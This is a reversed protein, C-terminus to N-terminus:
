SFSNIEVIEDFGEDLTPASYSNIMSDIIHLPIIKGPRSNLRDLHIEKEEDSEPMQFSVCVKKYYSPIRSLISRRKKVGLNTQDWIIDEQFELAKRLDSDNVKTAKKMLEPSFIENYTKGEIDAVSELYSDTSYVFAYKERALVWTSKGTAPLGVLVYLTPM